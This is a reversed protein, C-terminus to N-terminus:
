TRPQQTEWLWFKMKLNKLTTSLEKNSCVRKTTNTYIWWQRLNSDVLNVESVMIYLEMDLEENLNVKCKKRLKKCKSSKHGVQDFNYFEGSLKKKIGWGLRVKAGKNSSSPTKWKSINGHEVMNVKVIM